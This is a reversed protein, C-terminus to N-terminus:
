HWATPQQIMNFNLPMGNAKIDYLSKRLFLFSYPVIRGADNKVHNKFNFNRKNYEVLHGSTMKQKDTRKSINALIHIAILFKRFFSARRSFAKFVDQLYRSSTLSLRVYEDQDFSRSSTKQLRLRFVDELRRWFTKILIFTQQSVELNPQLEFHKLYEWNSCSIISAPISLKLVWKKSQYQTQYSCQLPRKLM